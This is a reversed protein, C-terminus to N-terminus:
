HTRTCVVCGVWGHWEYQTSSLYKRTHTKKGVLYEIDLNNNAYISKGARACRINILSNLSTPRNFSSRAIHPSLTATRKGLAM